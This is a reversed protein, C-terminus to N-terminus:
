WVRKGVVGAGEKIRYLAGAALRGLEETEGNPWRIEVREAGAAAGLGFYVAFDHQSAYSGGSRVEETMTKGGVTVRARAGIASRNSRTGELRLGLGNGRKAEVRYVAPGAGLNTVVIEEVGDGDLDGVALGRSAMPTGMRATAFVGGGNWYLSKAQKQAAGLEPYIHGNAM